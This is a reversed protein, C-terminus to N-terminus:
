DPGAQRATQTHGASNSPGNSPTARNHNPAAATNGSNQETTGSGGCPSCSSGNAIAVNPGSTVAPDSTGSQNATNSGDNTQTATQSVDPVSPPTTLSDAAWASAVGGVLWLALSMVLAILLRRM